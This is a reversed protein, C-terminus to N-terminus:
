LPSRAAVAALIGRVDEACLDNNVSIGAATGGAAATVVQHIHSTADGASYIGPVSTQQDANVEIRGRSTMACGLESALHSHQVLPVCLFLADCPFSDGGELQVTLAGDGHLAAIPSAFTSIGTERLWVRQEPSCQSCDLGCITLQRSWQFLEQALPVLDQGDGAIAITRDRMEWGDCYPCSFISQGWRERLGPIAPLEEIMGTALIIRRASVSRDAFEVGFGGALSRIQVVKERCTEVTPYTLLQKSAEALLELPPMGDRSLFGHMEAAVANRQSGADCLLVRRRARGLVLAASLGAPGAGVIVADFM